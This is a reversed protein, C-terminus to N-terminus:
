PVRIIGFQYPQSNMSNLDDQDTALIPSGAVLTMAQSEFVAIGGGNFHTVFLRNTTPDHALGCPSGSGTAFPSGAIIADQVNNDGGNPIAAADLVDVNNDQFNALYLRNQSPVYLLGAGVSTDRGGPRNYPSGAVPTLNVLDFASFDTDGGAYLRDNTLDVVMQGKNNFHGSNFPSGAIPTLTQADFIAYLANISINNDGTRMIIRDREADYAVSGVGANMNAPLPKFPSGAVINMNAADFVWLGDGSSLYVRDHNADYAVSRAFVNVGAGFPTTGQNTANAAFADKLPSGAVHAGTSASLVNLGDTPLLVRDHVSDYAMFGSPFLVDLPGAIRTLTAPNIAILDMQFLSGGDRECTIISGPPINVITSSNIDLTLQTPNLGNADAQIVFGTGARSIQLGSFTAVGDIAAVMTTGTFQAVGTPDNVLSLTVTRTDGTLANGFADTISVTLDFDTASTVPAPLNFTLMSAPGPTVTFTQSTAAVNGASARLVLNPFATIVQLDNFTAVGAVANVTTTGRLDIPPANAPQVVEITVPGNFGTARTGDGLRVEVVPAPTIVTGAERAVAGRTTPQTIFALSAIETANNTGSATTGRGAPGSNCGLFLSVLLLVASFRLTIKM